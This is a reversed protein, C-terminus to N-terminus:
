KTLKDLVPKWVEGMIRLHKLVYAKFRSDKNLSDRAQSAKEDTFNEPAGFIEILMAHFHLTKEMNQQIFHAMTKSDRLASTYEKAIKKRILPSTNPGVDDNPITDTSKFAEEFDTTTREPKLPTGEIDVLTEKGSADRKVQKLVGNVWRVGVLTAKEDM